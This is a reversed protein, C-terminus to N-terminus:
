AKVLSRIPQAPHNPDQRESIMVGPVFTVAEAVQGGQQTTVQVLVGAGEIEMAKTSKMWGEAESYAKSLLRWMDGNGAVVLDSVNMRAGSINTNKLTKKAM